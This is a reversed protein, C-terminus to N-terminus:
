HITRNDKIQSEKFQVSFMYPEYIPKLKEYLIADCKMANVIM